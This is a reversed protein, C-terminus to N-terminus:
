GVECLLDGARLTDGVQVVLRRVTGAHPAAVLNVMKMAETTVLRVGAAVSEGEKGHGAAVKGAM